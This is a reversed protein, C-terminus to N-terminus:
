GRAPAPGAAGRHRDAWAAWAPFLWLALGAWGVARIDPPPPGAISAVYAVVLVGVLSWLAWRGARDRPRAGLAYLWVGGAFIAGEVVLTGVTSRWLGLGVRTPDGPALQLDPIHTAFDLVWHSLVLLGVALAARWDRTAGAYAAAALLALAATGALSHTWPYADFSLRLFPTPGAVVHAREVGLLLLVPWILDPLQAAAFLVGLSARPAARKGAFAAGFHGIFM